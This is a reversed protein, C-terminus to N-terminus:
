IIPSYPECDQWIEAINTGARQDIALWISCEPDNPEISLAVGCSSNPDTSWTGLSGTTPNGSTYYYTTTATSFETCLSIDDAATAAYSIARPAVVAVNSPAGSDATVSAPGSHVDNNVHISCHLVGAVTSGLPGGRLEGIQNGAERTVDTTSNFACKQGQAPDTTPDAHSPAAFATALATAVVAGLVLKKM